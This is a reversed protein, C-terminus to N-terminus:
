PSPAEWEQTIDKISYWRLTCNGMLLAKLAGENTNSTEIDNHKITCEEINFIGQAQEQLAKVLAYFDGEHLLTYTIQLLTTKTIFENNAYLLTTDATPETPSLTFGLKPIGNLATNSQLAELWELRRPNGIVGQQQLDNYSGMFEKLQLASQAAGYNIAQPQKLNNQAAILDHKAENRAWLAILFVTAAISFLIIKISHKKLFVLISSKSM